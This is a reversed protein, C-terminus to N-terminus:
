TPKWLLVQQIMGNVTKGPSNPMDLGLQKVIIMVSLHKLHAYPPWCGPEFERFSYVGKGYNYAVIILSNRINFYVCPQSRGCRSRVCVGISTRLGWYVIIQKDAHPKRVHGCSQLHLIHIQIASFLSSTNTLYCASARWLGSPPSHWVQTGCDQQFTKERHRSFQTWKRSCFFRNRQM